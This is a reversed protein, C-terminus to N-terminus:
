LEAVLFDAVVAAVKGSQGVFHHDAALETVAFGRAEAREVVPRWEVTDDREGYVVQGPCAIRETAAVADIDDDIRPAPALASVAALDAGSSSEEDAAVLALCGGFSYGFLAVAAHRERAWTLANGADRLEGPGEDWDGYDFRLCAIGREVLADAVATLRRDSRSGGAQPHPPCAVVCAREGPDESEGDPADLSGRVDRAGPIVVAESM